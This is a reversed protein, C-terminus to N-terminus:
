LRRELGQLTKNDFETGRDALFSKKPYGMFDLCWKDLLVKVVDEAEKSKSIGGRTFRSAEDVMYVIQRKDRKDDTILAVPKLDISVVENLDNAKPFSVTPRKSKKRHKQCISCNKFIRELKKEVQKDFEGATKLLASLKEPTPHGFVRHLKKLEPYQKKKM